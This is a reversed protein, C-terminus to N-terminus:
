DGPNSHAALLEYLQGAETIAEILQVRQTADCQGEGDVHVWRTVQGHHDQEGAVEVWIDAAQWERILFYRRWDDEGHESWPDCAIADEPLPVRAFRFALRQESATLIRM